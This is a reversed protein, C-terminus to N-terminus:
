SSLRRSGGSDDSAVSDNSNSTVTKRIDPYLTDKFECEDIGGSNDQDFCQWLGMVRKPTLGINLGEVMWTFERRDIEGNRDVDFIKFLKPLDRISIGSQELCTRTKALVLIREREQWVDNFANGIIGLPIAMYLASTFVFFSTLARGMDSRPVSDGYGVTTMSILALWVADGYSGINERPELFYLLGSFWLLLTCYFFMLVPLVELTRQFARYLLHFTQFYRIMKLFRVFPVMGLLAACMARSVCVEPDPLRWAFLFGRVFLPVVSVIDILNYPFMFFRGRRPAAVFRLTVEICFLVEIGTDVISIVDRFASPGDLTALVGTTVALCILCRMTWDFILALVGQEPDDMTRWVFDLFATRKRSKIFDLIEKNIHEKSPRRSMKRPDDTPASSAAESLYQGESPRPEEEATQQEHLPPSSSTSKERKEVADYFDEFPAAKPALVECPDKPARSLSPTGSPDFRLFDAPVPDPPDLLEVLPLAVADNQKDPQQCAGLCAISAWSNRDREPRSSQALLADLKADLQSLRGTLSRELWSVLYATESSRTDPLDNGPREAGPEWDSNGVAM